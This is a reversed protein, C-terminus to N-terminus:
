SFRLARLSIEAEFLSGFCANYTHADALKSTKRCWCCADSFRLIFRRECVFCVFMCGFSVASFGGCIGLIMITISLTHMQARALCVRLAFFALSCPGNLLFWRWCVALVGFSPSNAIGNM